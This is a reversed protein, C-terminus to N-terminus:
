RIFPYIFAHIHLRGLIKSATVFIMFVFNLVRINLINYVYKVFWSCFSRHRNPKMSYGKESIENATRILCEFFSVVLLYIPLSTM